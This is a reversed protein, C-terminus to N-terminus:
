SQEGPLPRSLYEAREEETALRLLPIKGGYLGPTDIVRVIEAKCVCRYTDRRTTDNVLMTGTCGPHPCPLRTM